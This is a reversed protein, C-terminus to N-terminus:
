VRTGAIAALLTGACKGVRAHALTKYEGSRKTRRFVDTHTEEEREGHACVGESSGASKQM